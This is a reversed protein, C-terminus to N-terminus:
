LGQFHDVFFFSLRYSFSLLINLYTHYFFLSARGNLISFCRDAVFSANIVWLFVARRMNLFISSLTGVIFNLLAWFHCSLLATFYDFFFFINFNWLVVICSIPNIWWSIHFRNFFNLLRSLWTPWYDFSLLNLWCFLWYNLSSFCCSRWKQFFLLWIWLALFDYLVFSTM